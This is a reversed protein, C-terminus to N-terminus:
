KKFSLPKNGKNGSLGLLFNLTREWGLQLVYVFVFLWGLIFNSSLNENGWQLDLSFMEIWGEWINNLAKQSKWGLAEPSCHILTVPTDRYQRRLEIAVKGASVSCRQKSTQRSPEKRIYKLQRRNTVWQSEGRAPKKVSDSEKIYM